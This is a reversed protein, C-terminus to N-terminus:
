PLSNLCCETVYVDCIHPPCPFMDGLAHECQEEPLHFMKAEKRDGMCM